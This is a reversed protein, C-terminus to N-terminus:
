KMFPTVLGLSEFINNKNKLSDQETKGLSEEGEKGGKM